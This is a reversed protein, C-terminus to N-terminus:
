SSDEEGWRQARKVGRSWDRKLKELEGASRQRLFLTDMEWNGEIEARSQWFEM